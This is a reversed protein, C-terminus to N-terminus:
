RELNKFSTDTESEWKGVSAYYQYEMVQKEETDNTKRNFTIMMQPEGYHGFFRLKGSIQSLQNSPITFEFPEHTLIIKRTTITPGAPKKQQMVKPPPPPPPASPGSPSSPSSPTINQPTENVVQKEFESKEALPATIVVGEIFSSSIGRDDLGYISVKLEDNPLQTYLRVIRRKFKWEPVEIGLETMVIRMFDDCSSGVRMHSYKDLPTYQKNCIVLKKKYKTAVSLPMERAPSVTCSSGLVIMLDSKETNDKAKQYISQDLYEGFNIITDSLDGECGEVSCKRGTKHSTLSVTTADFDRLYQTNCKLCYELFANGHLESINEPLIGSKLHLGDCNQSIVYKLIGERQLAYLAMHSYTPLAATMKNVKKMLERQTKGEKEM